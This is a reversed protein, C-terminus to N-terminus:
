ETSSNSNGTNQGSVTDGSSGSNETSGSGSSTSGGTGTSSSGSSTGSGGANGASSSGTGTGSEEEADAGDSTNQSGGTGDTGDTGTESEEEEETSDEEGTARVLEFEVEVDNMLSYEGGPLTVELTQTYSGEGSCDSLDLSVAIDDTNLAALDASTGMVIIEVQDLDGFDAEYGRPVNQLGIESVPIDVTRGQKRELEVVVAISADTDDKLRIGDPLYPTIDITLQLNETIGDINVAEDPITIETVGAIDESRGAITITEPKYSIASFSYNEDPTGTYGVRVAVEKTRLMTVTVDMGESKGTFELAALDAGTLADGNGDVVRLDCHVTGDSTMLSADLVAEVRRIKSVISTPGSLEIMSQEPVATGVMYGDPPYEDVAVVVNFRETSADEVSIVVNERSKTIDESGIERNRCTVEIGVLNGYKLNKEMDATATFDDASLQRLVSDNAYVRISIVDSNDEVQYVKGQDTIVNENLMTVQIASFDRYTVPDDIVLVILWLMIAAAVSLLKLGLNNTLLKKM